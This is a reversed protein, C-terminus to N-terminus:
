GVRRAVFVASSLNLAGTSTQGVKVEFYEGATYSGEVHVQLGTITGNVAQKSDISLLAAGGTYISAYRYGTANSAFYGHFTFHYKGTTALTIRSPNTVGEHMTDTDYSESDFSVTTQTTDPISQASSIYVRCMETFGGGGGLASIDTSYSAGGRVVPVLDGTTLAGADSAAEVFASFTESAM